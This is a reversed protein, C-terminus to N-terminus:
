SPARRPSRTGREPCTPWRSPSWSATALASGSYARTRLTCASCARSRKRCSSRAHSATRRTACRGSGSATASASARRAGPELGRVESAAEVFGIARELAGLPDDELGFTLALFFLTESDTTGQIGRFLGPEVALMLERRLEHWGGLAGNHVMVWRGHSFPHCNTEQVDTGTSARVHALFLPSEIHSAMGRLNADNWAPSVSRYIGAGEGAGYWGIGFGDGNTTEVGLHSHLSQVVLSNTPKFLLEELIVPQGLWGMWRCMHCGKRAKRLSAWPRQRRGLTAFNRRHLTGAPAAPTTVPGGRRRLDRFTQRVMEWV